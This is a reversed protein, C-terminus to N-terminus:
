ECLMYKIFSCLFSYTLLFKDLQSLEYSRPPTDPDFEFLRKKSFKGEFFQTFSYRDLLLIGYM